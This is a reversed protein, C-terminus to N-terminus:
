YEDREPFYNKMNGERNLDLTICHLGGDWFYRHRFNCIHPTVNYRELADFVQKNYNTVVVNHENIVLMNVDFVTEEVYGLWNDLWTNITEILMTNGEEGPIWWKGQNKQKLEMFPLIKFWSQEPMYIVEWDPFTNAYTPIDYLSIILGPVVPCFTGDNHGKVQLPNIRYDDNLISKINAIESSSIPNGAMEGVYLDKGIRTTFATSLSYPGYIKELNNNINLNHLFKYEELYKFNFGNYIDDRTNDPLNDIQNFSTINNPWTDDKIGNYHYELSKDGIFLQSGFVGGIDRPVMPPTQYRKSYEKYYYQHDDHVTPRIVEVNFSHLLKILSQFDEETEIAMKEMANRAKSDKIWSYFEPPYSKGVVCVKLPDWHQYVSYM